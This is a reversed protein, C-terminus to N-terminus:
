HKVKAYLAIMKRYFVPSIIASILKIKTVFKIEKYFVARVIKGFVRKRYEKIVKKVEQGFNNETFIFALEMYSKARYVEALHEFGGGYAKIKKVCLESSAIGESVHKLYNQNNSISGERKDRYSYVSINVFVARKTRPLLESTYIADESIINPVFRLDGYVSKKYLRTNVNTILYISSDSIVYSKVLNIGGQVVKIKYDKLIKEAGGESLNKLKGCVLDSRNEKALKLFVEIVNLSIYDDSDVFFFWDGSAYELGSNRADSLGGNRKHVVKIHMENELSNVWEAYEDCIKGSNDTSGDDVLIIELKKYTQNVVSDLCERLYKEVNYVPVIVSVLDM